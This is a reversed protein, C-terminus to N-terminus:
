PKKISKKYLLQKDRGETLCWSLDDSGGWGRHGPLLTTMSDHPRGSTCPWCPSSSLLSWLRAGGTWLHKKIEAEVVPVVADTPGFRPFALWHQIGPVVQGGARGAELDCVQHLEVQHRQPPIRAPGDEPLHLPPPRDLREGGGPVFDSRYGQWRRWSTGPRGTNTERGSGSRRQQALNRVELSPLLVM